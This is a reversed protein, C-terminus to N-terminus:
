DACTNVVLHNYLLRVLSPELLELRLDGSSPVKGGDM